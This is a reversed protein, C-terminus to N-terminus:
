AESNEFYLLIVAATTCGAWLEVIGVEGTM